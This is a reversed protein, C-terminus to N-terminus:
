FDYMTIILEHIQPQPYFRSFNKNPYIRYLKMNTLKWNIKM